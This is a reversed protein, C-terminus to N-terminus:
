VAKPRSESYDAMGFPLAHGVVYRGGTHEHVVKALHHRLIAVCAGPEVMDHPQDRRRHHRIDAGNIHALGVARQQQDGGFAQLRFGDVLCAKGRMLAEDPEHRARGLRNGDLVGRAMRGEGVPRLRPLVREVGEEPHRDQAGAPHGAHQDDLVPRLAGVAFLFDVRQLGDRHHQRFDDMRELRGRRRLLRWLALHASRAAAIELAADEAFAEAKAPGHQVIRDHRCRLEKRGVHGGLGLPQIFAQDAQAGRDVPHHQDVARGQATIRAVHHFGVPQQRLVRGPGLLQMLADPGAQRRLGRDVPGPALVARPQHIRAIGVQAFPQVVEFVEVVPEQAHEAPFLALRLDLAVAADENGAAKSRRLQQFIGLGAQATQQHFLRRGRRVGGDHRSREADRRNAADLVQRRPDLLAVIDDDIGLFACHM